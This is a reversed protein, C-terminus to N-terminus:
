YEDTKQADSPKVLYRSSIYVMLGHEDSISEQKFYISLGGEGEPLKEQIKQINKGSFWKNGFLGQERRTCLEHWPEKLFFHDRISRHSPCARGARGHV